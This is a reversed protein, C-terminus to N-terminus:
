WSLLEVVERLNPGFDNPISLSLGTPISTLTNM